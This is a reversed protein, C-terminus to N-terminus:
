RPIQRKFGILSLVFALTTEATLILLFPSNAPLGTGKYAIGRFANIFATGPLFEVVARVAEDMSSIPFVFGSLFVNPIFLVIWCLILVDLPRDFWAAILLGLSMCCVSYLICLGFFLLLSGRIAIGFYLCALYVVAVHFLSILFYPLSKGAILEANSMRTMRLMRFSGQAKEKNVSTGLVVSSILIFIMLVLGPVPMYEKKLSPNYVYRVSPEPVDMRVAQRSEDAFFDALVSRIIGDGSSALLESTGDLFIDVGDARYVVVARTDAKAFAGSIESLSELRGVIRLKPNAELRAFIREAETSHGPNCVQINHHHVEFSLAYGFLLLIIAPMLFLLLCSVKDRFIHRFEKRVVSRIRQRSDAAM